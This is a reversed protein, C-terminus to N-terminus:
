STTTARATSRTSRRPSRRRSARAPQARSSSSAAAEDHLGQARGSPRAARHDEARRSSVSPPVLSERQFYVNVRFRASAPSRTPSTSRASTRSSRRSSPPLIRYLMQQTNEPSLRAFDDLRELRGNVRVVPESGVTVHLDSAGVRRGARAPRRGLPPGGSLPRPRSSRRPRAPCTETPQLTPEMPGGVPAIPLSVAHSFPYPFDGSRPSAAGNSGTSVVGQAM